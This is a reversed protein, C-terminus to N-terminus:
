ACCYIKWGWKAMKTCICLIGAPCNQIIRSFDMRWWRRVKNLHIQTELVCVWALSRTSWVNSDCLSIVVHQKHTHTDTHIWRVYIYICIGIHMNKEKMIYIYIYMYMYLIVFMRVCTYFYMDYIYIYIYIYMYETREYHPSDQQLNEVGRVRAGDVVCGFAQVSEEELYKVHTECWLTERLVVQISQALVNHALIIRALTNYTKRWFPERWITAGSHNAGSQKARSTMTTPQSCLMCHNDTQFIVCMHLLVIM